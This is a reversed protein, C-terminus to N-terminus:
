VKMKPDLWDRLSDGLINFSLVTLAIAIGPFVVTWPASLIYNRSLSIMSGWTPTPPQAGLGLFSLASESLIFSGVKLSGAIIILPLCNPLIHRLLIRGTGCGAARAAEVFQQEKFSLVMGRSLRAFSAWGVSALAIMVTFIGPPLVVTIGIALLLSPFAMVMDTLATLAADAKGGIYGGTIGVLVGICLSMASALIGVLLSIRTGYILRSLIDRGKNDTGMWHGWSPAARLQDLDIRLPDYPSVVPAIIAFVVLAIIIVASAFAVKDKKLHELM